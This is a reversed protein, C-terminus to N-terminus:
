SREASNEVERAAYHASGSEAARRGLVRERQYSGRSLLKGGIMRAIMVVDVVPRFYSRRAGKRYIAAIPVAISLVGARAADILIESEFVFGGSRNHVIELAEVVAAPYLRFGSQSDEVRYGAALSISSTALRNALYRVWPMNRSEHLRAGVVIAAPNKDHAAIIRPIDEPAHQGDADLTLIATAGRELAYAIGRRLSASKGATKPNRLVVASLGDLQEATGDSSGDDVVIVFGVRDLTRVVVDRITASENLAPIVVAYFPPRSELPRFPTQQPLELVPPSDYM